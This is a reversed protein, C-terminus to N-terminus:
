LATSPLQLLLIVTSTIIQHNLFFCFMVLLRVYWTESISFLKRESFQSWGDQTKLLAGHISYSGRPFSCGRPGCLSHLCCGWLRCACCWQCSVLCAPVCFGLLLGAPICSRQLAPLWPHQAKFPVISLGASLVPFDPTWCSWPLLRFPQEQLFSLHQQCSPAQLLSLQFWSFTSFLAHVRNSTQDPLAPHSSHARPGSCHTKELQRWMHFLIM